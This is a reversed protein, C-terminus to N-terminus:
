VSLIPGQSVSDGFGCLKQFLVALRDVPKVRDEDVGQALPEFVCLRYALQFCFVVQWGRVRCSLFLLNGSKLFQRLTGVEVGFECLIEQIEDNPFDDLIVLFM